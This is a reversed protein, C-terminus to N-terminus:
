ALPFRTGKLDYFVAACNRQSLIGFKLKYLLQTLTIFAGKHLPRIGGIAPSIDAYRVFPARARCPQIKAFCFSQPITKRQQM